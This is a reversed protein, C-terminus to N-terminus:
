MVLITKKADLGNVTNLHAPLIWTQVMSITLRTIISIMHWSILHWWITTVHQVRDLGPNAPHRPPLGHEQKAEQSHILVGLDTSKGHLFAVAQKPVLTGTRPRSCPSEGIFKVFISPLFAPHLSACSDVYQDPPLVVILQWTVILQKLSRRSTKPLIKSSGSYDIALWKLSCFHDFM